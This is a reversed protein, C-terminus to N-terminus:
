AKRAMGIIAFWDGKFYKAVGDSGMVMRTM